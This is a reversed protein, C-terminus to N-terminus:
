QLQKWDYTRVSLYPLLSLYSRPDFEVLVSPKSNDAQSRQISIGKQAILNGVVKLGNNGAGTNIKGDVIFIGNLETVLPDITLDGTVLIAVSNTLPSNKNNFKPVSITLNGYIIVVINNKNITNNDSINPDGSGSKTTDLIYITNDANIGSKLGQTSIDTYTKRSKIYSIFSYSKLLPLYNTGESKWGTSSVQSPATNISQAVADGPDSGTNSDIFYAKGPDTSDYKTVTKPVPNNLSSVGAFSTDVLKIWSLPGPPTPTLTQTPTPGGGSCNTLVNTTYWVGMDKIEVKIPYITGPNTFLGAPAIYQYQGDACTIDRYNNNSPDGWTIICKALWGPNIGSFSVNVLPQFGSSPVPGPETQPSASVNASTFPSGSSTDAPITPPCIGPTPTPTVVCSDPRVFIQTNAINRSTNGFCQYNGPISSAQCSLGYCCSMQVGPIACAGGVTQCPSDPTQEVIASANYWNGAVTYAHTFTVDNYSDSVVRCIKGWDYNLCEGPAPHVGELNYYNPDTGDGFNFTYLRDKPINYYPPFGPPGPQRLSVTFTVPSGISTTHPIAYLDYVFDSFHNAIPQPAPQGTCPDPPAACSNSIYVYGTFYVSNGGHAVRSITAQIPYTGETTYLGSPASFTGGSCSPINTQSLPNTSWTITCIDNAVPFLSDGFSVTASPRFGVPGIIPSVINANLGECTDRNCSLGGPPGGGPICASGQSGCQDTGAGRVVKCSCNDLCAYHYDSAPPPPPGPPPPPPGPPPPPAPGGSPCPFKSSGSCECDQSCTDAGGGPRVQCSGAWCQKHTAGCPYSPSGPCDCDQSCTDIGTGPRVQCAQAWCQKYSCQPAPDQVINCTDGGGGSVWACGTGSCGKHKTKVCSGSQCEFPPNSCTTGNVWSCGDSSCTQITDGSCTTSGPSCIKTCGGGGGCTNIGCDALGFHSTEACASGCTGPDCTSWSVNGSCCAASSDYTCTGGTATYPTCCHSTGNCISGAHSASTACRGQASVISRSILLFAAVFTFLILYRLSDSIKTILM